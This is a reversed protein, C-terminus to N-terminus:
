FDERKEYFRPNDCFPTELQSPMKSETKAFSRVSRRLAGLMDEAKKSQFVSTVTQLEKQKTKRTTLQTKSRMNTIYWHIGNFQAMGVFSLLTTVLYSVNFAGPSFLFDYQSVLAFDIIMLLVSIPLCILIFLSAKQVLKIPRRFLESDGASSMQLLKIFIKRGSYFIISMFILFVPTILLFIYFFRLPILIAMLVLFGLTSIMAFRKFYKIRKELGRNSGQGLRQMSQSVDLWSISIQLTAILLMEVAIIRATTTFSGYKTTVDQITEGQAKFDEIIFATPDDLTSIQLGGYLMLSIYGILTAVGATIIPLSGKRGRRKRDKENRFLMVLKLLDFLMILAFIGAWICIIILSVKIFKTTITPTSCDEGIFGFYNSCDCFYTQDSWQVETYCKRAIGDVSCNAAVTCEEPLVNETLNETM